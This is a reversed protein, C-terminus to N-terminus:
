LDARDFVLSGIAPFALLWLLLLALVAPDSFYTPVEESLIHQVYEDTRLTTARAWGEATLEVDVAAGFGGLLEEDFTLSTVLTRYAEIPNLLLLFLQLNTLTEVGLSTHDTLLRDVGEVFQGWFIAFIVYLTVTGVVAGRASEAVASIGVGIGVFALALLATLLTFALYTGVSLSVPTVVFVLAAITFAVLVPLVVVLGRGILKGFVVSRRSHPLSLLLKVTGSDRERAISAYSAILAAVIVLHILPLEALLFLFFDSSGEWGAEAADIERSLYYAPIAFSITFLAILGWLWWSRVADQFDKRAVARWTM